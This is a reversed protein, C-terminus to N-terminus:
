WSMRSPRLCLCLLLPSVNPPIQKFSSPELLIKLGAVGKSELLLKLDEVTPMLVAPAAGGRLLQMLPSQVVNSQQQQQQQANGAAPPQAPAYGVGAPLYGGGAATAAAAPMYGGRPSYGDGAAAAVAAGGVQRM